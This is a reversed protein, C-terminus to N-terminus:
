KGDVTFCYVSYEYPMKQGAAMKKLAVQASAESEGNSFYLAGNAISAGGRFDSPMDHEWLVKGTIADLAQMKPKIIYGLYVVGNAIAIPSEQLSPNLNMWEVDGNYGNLAATVAFAPNSTVNRYQIYVKNYAFAISNTQTGGGAAKAGLMVKWYLQGTYRNVCFVGAKCGAIVCHRVDGKVFMPPEADYVVPHANFDIDAADQPYPQFYWLLEGTDIDHAVMSATFLMPGPPMFAKADGTANYLINYKEDVAGGNWLPGGGTHAEPPVSQAVRWSWRIAGTEQDLSAIRADRATYGVLVRGHYVVVAHMMSASQRPDDEMHTNWIEKGTAADLCHVIARGDGFYIRGDAYQCSGRTARNKLANTYAGAQPTEFKWKLKGTGSDLAYYWSGAGFFLSDGIVTPTTQIPSHDIVDFQWKMKLRDVNKPGLTKENVNNHTNQNDYGFRPWDAAGPKPAADAAAMLRSAGPLLSGMAGVAALGGAKQVFDRRTIENNTM